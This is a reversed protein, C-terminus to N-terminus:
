GNYMVARGQLFYIFSKRLEEEAKDFDSDWKEDAFRGDLCNEYLANVALDIESSSFM